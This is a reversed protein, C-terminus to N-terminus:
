QYHKTNTTPNQQQHRNMGGGTPKNFIMYGDGDVVDGDADDDDM